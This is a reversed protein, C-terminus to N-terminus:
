LHPLFFLVCFWKTERGKAPFTESKTDNVSLTDVVCPLQMCSGKNLYCVHCLDRKKFKVALLPRSACSSSVM